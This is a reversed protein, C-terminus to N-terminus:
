IFHAENVSTVLAQELDIIAEVYGPRENSHLFELLFSEEKLNVQEAYLAGSKEIERLVNRIYTEIKRTKSEVLSSMDESISDLEPIIRRFRELKVQTENLEEYYDWFKEHKIQIVLGSASSSAAMNRRLRKINDFVVVVESLYSKIM